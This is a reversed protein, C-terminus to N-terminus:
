HRADVTAVTFPASHQGHDDCSGVAQRVRGGIRDARASPEPESRWRGAGSRGGHNPLPNSKPATLANSTGNATPTAGLETATNKSGTISKASRNGTRCEPKDVTVGRSPTIAKAIIPLCM